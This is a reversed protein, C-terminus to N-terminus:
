QFEEWPVLHPKGLPEVPIVPWGRALYAFAWQGTM